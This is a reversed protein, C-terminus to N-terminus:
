HSKEGCTSDYGLITPNDLPRSRFEQLICIEQISFTLEVGKPSSTSTLEAFDIISTLRAFPYSTKPLAEKLL